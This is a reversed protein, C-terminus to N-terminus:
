VEELTFHPKGPAKGANKAPAAAAAAAEAGYALVTGLVTTPQEIYQRFAEQCQEVPFVANILPGVAIDGEAILRIYEAMNRGETWRVYGIPYDSGYKEYSPDYRGPGGARSILITAEKGFMLDRSFDPKIDGVILVKGRDRIWELGQDILSGTKGGACVIVADAGQGGTLEQLQQKVEDANLAVHRIGLQKAVECRDALVDSVIIRYGAAKGIQAILQGLIGAGIVVATEGFNLAAQRVAHVAIAGLGVTSAEEDSVHDPVRVMLHEPMLLWEAHRAYPAGYCAVRSGLEWHEMGQGRERIIGCASYGLVVPEQKYLGNMMIETGPSIASYTTEVLVFGSELAPKPMENIRIEGEHSVVARM